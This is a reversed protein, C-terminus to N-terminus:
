ARPEGESSGPSLGQLLARLSAEFRRFDPHERADRTWIELRHSLAGHELEVTIPVEDDGIARTSSPVDLLRTKDAASWIAVVRERDLRGAVTRPNLGGRESSRLTYAGDSRLSFDIIGSLEHGRHYSLMLDLVSTPEQAAKGLLERLQEVPASQM